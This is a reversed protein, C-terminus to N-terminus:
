NNNNNNNNNKNYYHNNNNPHAMWLPQKNRYRDHNRIYDEYAQQYSTNNRYPHDWWSPQSRDNIAHDGQRNILYWRHASPKRHFNNEEITSQRIKDQDREINLVKTLFKSLM